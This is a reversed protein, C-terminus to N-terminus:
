NRFQLDILKKLKEIFYTPNHPNFEVKHKIMFNGAEVDSDGLGAEMCISYLMSKKTMDAQVFNFFIHSLFFIPDKTKKKIM